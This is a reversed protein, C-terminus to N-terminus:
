IYEFLVYLAPLDATIKATIKKFDAAGIRGRAATRIGGRAARTLPKPRFEYQSHSIYKKTLRNYAPQRMPKKNKLKFKVSFIHSLIPERFVM